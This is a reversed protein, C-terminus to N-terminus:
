MFINKFGVRAVGETFVGLCLGQLIASGVSPTATLPL